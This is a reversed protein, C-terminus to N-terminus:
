SRRSLALSLFPFSGDNLVLGVFRPSEGVDAARRTLRRSNYRFWGGRASFAGGRAPNRAFPCWWNVQSYYSVFRAM